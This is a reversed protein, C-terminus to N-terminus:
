WFPCWGLFMRSLNYVDKASDILRKAQDEVSLVIENEFDTGMLKQKVRNRREISTLMRQPIESPLIKSDNMSEMMSIGRNKSTENKNIKRNFQYEEEEVDILPEHVFVGLVMLLVRRNERLINSMEIFMSKFLGRERNVGMARTMMRTLRFPVKEPFRDRTMAKEFCDGFDIHVVKGSIRDILLNSPHRDGLGLVYGIISNLANSIAFTKIQLNWNEASTGKLWFFNALDTDPVEQFIKDIIQM